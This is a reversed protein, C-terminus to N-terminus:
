PWSEHRDIDNNHCDAAGNTDDSSNRALHNEGRSISDKWDCDNRPWKLIQCVIM